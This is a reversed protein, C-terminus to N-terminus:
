KLIPNQPRNPNWFFYKQSKYSRASPLFRFLLVKKPDQSRNPDLFLVKTLIKRITVIRQLREYDKSFNTNKFTKNGTNITM